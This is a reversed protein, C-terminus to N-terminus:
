MVAKIKDIIASLNESLNKNIVDDYTYWGYEDNKSINKIRCLYTYIQNGSFFEITFFRDVEAEIGALKAARVAAKETTEGNEIEVTPLDIEDKKVLLKGSDVLLCASYHPM